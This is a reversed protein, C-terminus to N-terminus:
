LYVELLLSLLWLLLGLGIGLLIQHSLRTTTRPRARSM